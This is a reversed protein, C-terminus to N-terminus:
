QIHKQIEQQWILYGKGTLHLGDHTFEERMQDNTVFHSYLDIYASHYKDAIVKLKKNLSIIDENSRNGTLGKGIPLVSQVYIKTDQSGERVKRVIQEYNATISETDRGANLDNTGIMILLKSPKAEIINDLRDLVDTTTDGSIGRNAINIDPLLENWEAYDTLSDGLFVVSNPTPPLTKFLSVRDLHYVTHKSKEASGLVSKVKQALYSIGGRQYVAASGISMLSLNLVFSAALILKLRRSM